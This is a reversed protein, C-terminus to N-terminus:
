DVACLGMKEVFANLSMGLLFAKSTMQDGKIWDHQCRYTAIKLSKNELQKLFM